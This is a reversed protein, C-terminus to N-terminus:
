SRTADILAVPTAGRTVTVANGAVVRRADAREHADRHHHRGTPVQHRDRRQRSPPAVPASSRTSAPSCTTKSRRSSRGARRQKSLAQLFTTFPTEDPVLMKIKDAMEIYKQEPALQRHRACGRDPAHSSREAGGRIRPALDSPPPARGGQRHPRGLGAMPNSSSARARLPSLSSRARSSPRKRQAARRVQRAKYVWEIVDVFGPPRHDGPQPRRGARDRRRARSRRGERGALEPYEDRLAEFADDRQELSRAAERPALESQIQERVLDGIVRARRGRDARRHRHLLRVRRSRRRRDSTRDRRQLHALYPRHEAAM